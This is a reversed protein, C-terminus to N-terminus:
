VEVGHEDQPAPEAEFTDKEFEALFDEGGLELLELALEIFALSQVGIVVLVFGKGTERLQGVLGGGPKVCM